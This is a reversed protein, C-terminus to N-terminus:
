NRVIHYSVFAFSYINKDSTHTKKQSQFLVVFFLNGRVKLWWDLYCKLKLHWISHVKIKMAKTIRRSNNTLFNLEPVTFFITDMSTQDCYSFAKQGLNMTNFARQTIPQLAKTCKVKTRRHKNCKEETVCHFLQHYNFKYLALFYLSVILLRSM